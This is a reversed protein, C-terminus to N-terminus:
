SGNELFRTMDTILKKTINIFNENDNLVAELNGTKASAELIAAMKGVKDAGINLSSGKIGHVAIAYSKLTEATPNQLEDLVPPTTEIYIKLIERYIEENGVVRELGSKMDLGDIMESTTSDNDTVPEPLVLIKTETPTKTEANTKPASEIKMETKTESETKVAFTIHKHKPIWRDLISELRIPDIPKSLFDNMGHSLFMERVGSVANATLAIIPVDQGEPITRIQATTELGDMGPMMHDMFILDYNNKRVLNVADQGSECIDVQCQFPIMLGQAVKLNTVIDDVVLIRADPATFRVVTMDTRYLHTDSVHNFVNALPATYLPSSITYYRAHGSFENNETMVVLQPTDSNQYIETLLNVTEELVSSAVFIYDYGAKRVEQEFRVFDSVLCFCIKLSEFASRCVSDYGSRPEYILSTTDEPQDLRAFPEDRIFRQQITVTFISGFGYQSQVQVDGNMLRALNRVIALGLGTGVIGKNTEKDFQMFNGFLQDIDEPKIGIGTDVIDFTLWVTQDQIRNRVTMKIFGERTYKAANSLLNLLIQRLRVEDGILYNPITSDIELFFDLPSELLRTRIINVIDHVMSRFQYESEVIEMKGSEIKSFDLIDNIISLLSNGAQKISLVMEHASNPIKERLALEAMGIIASMPTRIEHSMNALFSSKVRSAQEAQEKAALVETVDHCLLIAGESEGDHSLMPAIHVVYDRPSDAQGWATRLPIKMSCRKSMSQIIIQVAKKFEAAPFVESFRRANLFGFSTQGLIQLFSETCYVFRGEGDIMIILDPSNRLLLELYKGQRVREAQLEAELDLNAHTAAKSRSILTELRTIERKLRKNERELDVPEPSVSIPVEQNFM